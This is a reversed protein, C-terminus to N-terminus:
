LNNGEQEARQVANFILSKWCRSAKAGGYWGVHFVLFVANEGTEWM